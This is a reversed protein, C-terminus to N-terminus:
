VDRALERALDTDAGIALRSLRYRDAGPLVVPGGGYLCAAAYGATRLARTVEAPDKGGDGYPFAFTEVRKSLKEELMAKSAVLEEAIQKPELESFAVHDVGHSQVSIGGAELAHLDDWDCIPDLPQGADDFAKKRGVTVIPVFMVGPCGRAAMIPLARELVSRDGDDFTVLVSREPLLDPHSLGRIATALDVFV